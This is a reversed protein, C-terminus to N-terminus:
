APEGPVDLSDLYAANGRIAPLYRRLEDDPVHDAVVRLVSALAADPRGAAHLTLAEFVALSSSGPFEARARTFLALSEDVRGLNRLTSGHQLYCRRLIHGALGAAEAREYLDLATAEEGATDYAGGVEYLVRADDPHRELLPLLAAITPGMDDRDRAAVIRDLQADLTEPM